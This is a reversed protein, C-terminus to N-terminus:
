MFLLIFLGFIISATSFNLNLLLAPFFRYLLKKDNVGKDLIPNNRQEIMLIAMKAARNSLRLKEVAEIMKPKNINSNIYLSLLKWLEINRIGSEVKTTFYDKISVHDLTYINHM